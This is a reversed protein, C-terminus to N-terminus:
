PKLLIKGVTQRNEILEHVKKADELPYTGSIVLKIKGQELLPLVQKATEQVMEPRNKLTTGLSFGLVARCSAHLQKTNVTGGAGSSSNFNVIRGYMALCELSENFNDGGVSDLIVDVGKGDTVENVVKSFSDKRYNIVLDAGVQKAVQIKEDSGVTGIIQKAGLLRAMQIATTGIGGAAVHILVSEGSRMRAVQHLLNYTTFTVLPSAGATEFDLDEPIPFTLREDAVTYEAYSGNSPFAIVRDGKKVTRVNAGTEEVVGAVDLGPIVPPKGAAHYEGKRTKIDAFNVSAAAVRILVQNAEIKPIETEKLTLVEPGGFQEIVIAKM